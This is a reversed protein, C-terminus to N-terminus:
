TVAAELAKGTKEIMEAVKNRREFLVRADKTFSFMSPAIEKDLRLLEEAERILGAHAAVGLARLKQIREQLLYLYEYDEMGDRFLEARLSDIPGDPGPYYLLGNGNQDWETNAGTKFPDKYPWWNVCWYL